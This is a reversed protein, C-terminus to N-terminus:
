SFYHLHWKCQVISIAFHISRKTSRKMMTYEEGRMSYKILVVSNNADGLTNVYISYVNLAVFLVGYGIM